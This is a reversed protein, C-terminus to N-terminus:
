RAAHLQVASARRARVWATVELHPMRRSRWLCKTRAATIRQPAQTTRARALKSPSRAVPMMAVHRSRALVSATVEQLSRQKNPWQFETREAFTLPQPPITLAMVLRSLSRGVRMVAAHRRRPPVLLMLLLIWLIRIQMPCRTLEATTSKPDQPPSMPAKALRSPSKAALMMAAHPGKLEVTPTQEVPLPHKTPLQFEALEATIIQLLMQVLVLLTGM